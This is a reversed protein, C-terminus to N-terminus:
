GVKDADVGGQKLKRLDALESVFSFNGDFVFM